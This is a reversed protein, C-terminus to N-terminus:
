SPTRRLVRERQVTNRAPPEERHIAHIQYIIAKKESPSKLLERDDPPLAFDLDDLLIRPTAVNWAFTRKTM